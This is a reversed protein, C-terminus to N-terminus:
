REHLEDRSVNKFKGMEFGKDLLVLMEKSIKKQRQKGVWDKMAENTASGLIGKGKGKTESVTKRFNEEVKDEVTVTITGM